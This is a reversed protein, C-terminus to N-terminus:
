ALQAPHTFGQRRQWEGAVALNGAVTSDIVELVAAVGEGAGGSMAVAGGGAGLGVSATAAAPAASGSARAAYAQNSTAAVKRLTIHAAATDAFLAGGSGTRAHRAYPHLPPGRCGHPM